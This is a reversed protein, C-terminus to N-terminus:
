ALIAIGPVEPNTQKLKDRCLQVFVRGLGKGRLSPDIRLAQQLALRGSDQMLYSLYGCM